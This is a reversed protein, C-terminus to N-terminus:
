QALKEVLEPISYLNELPEWEGVFDNTYFEENPLDSEFVKALELATITSDVDKPAIYGFPHGKTEDTSVISFIIDFQQGMSEATVSPYKAVVNQIMEDKHTSAYLYSKAYAAVMRKVLDPNEKVTQRTAILGHAMVNLGYDSFMFARAKLTPDVKLMDPLGDLPNSNADLRGSLWLPTKTNENVLVIKVDNETLGVAKLIAPLLYQDNGDTGVGLTRGKLDEITKIPGDAKV